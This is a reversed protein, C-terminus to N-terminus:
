KKSRKRILFIGLFIFTTLTFIMAIIQPLKKHEPPPLSPITKMQIAPPSITNEGRSSKRLPFIKGLKKLRTNLIISTFIPKMSEFLDKHASLRLLITVGGYLTTMYHTYYNPVEGEFHVAEVWEINNVYVPKASLVKSIITRGEQSTATKTAGFYSLFNKLSEEPSSQKAAISVLMRSKYKPDKSRCLWKTNDLQCNWNKPVQTTLYDTELLKSEKMDIARIQTPLSFWSLFFVITCLFINM